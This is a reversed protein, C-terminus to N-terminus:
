PVVETRGLSRYDGFTFRYIDLPNLAARARIVVPGDRVTVTMSWIGPAIDVHKEDIAYIEPMTPSSITFHGEYWADGRRFFYGYGQDGVQDGAYVYVGAMAGMLSYLLVLSLALAIGLFLLVPKRKM